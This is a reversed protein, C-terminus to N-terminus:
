LACLPSIRGSRFEVHVLMYLVGETLSAKMGYLVTQERPYSARASAVGIKALPQPGPLLLIMLSKVGGVVNPNRRGREKQSLETLPISSHPVDLGIMSPMYVDNLRYM